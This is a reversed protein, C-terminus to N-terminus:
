SKENKRKPNRIVKKRAVFDDAHEECLWTEFGTEFTGWILTETALNQCRHVYISLGISEPRQWDKPPVVNADCKTNKPPKHPWRTRSM